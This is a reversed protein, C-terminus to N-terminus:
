PTIVTIGATINPDLVLYDFADVIGDGTLDTAVYGFTGAIVDPDLVVYDFGDISLDQPEIDGSYLAWVGTEVEIQNGAYAQTAATSFDYSASTSMLVPNASWTELANRHKVVIYYSNGNVLSPFNCLLSGDVQLIGTFPPVGTALAFPFTADHLEVTINDCDTTPNPLGSLSLAPNMQQSGIYFGQIFLTLDLTSIPLPDVIVTASAPSCSSGPVTYLITHTGVGAVAPDFQNGIVGPGSFSGGSPTGTITVAADNVLYNPALGSISPVADVTAVVPVRPSECGATVNWDFFYYYLDLRVTNTPAATLTSHNISLVGPVVYPYGYNGGPASASPEFLLGTIGTFGPRIKYNTGPAINFNLNLTTPPISGVPAGTVNFTATHLVTGSGNIVDVTVTGSASSASVPYVKVSQLTFPAFVDFVLGFNTTGAGSTATTNATAKGTTVIGTGIVTAAYYTTTSSITPTTYSNGTALPVGGTANAFWNITGGASPTADLLVTGTGCTAGPTTATVSPDNVIVTFVPSYATNSGCTTEVQYYMTHTLTGTNYTTAGTGVNTWPGTASTSEQWQIPGGTVGNSTLVSAGSYCHETLNATITGGSLSPASTITVTGSTLCGAFPGATLDEAVVSYTTTTTPLVTHPGNGSATFGAPTSTWSYTYDPDNPSTVSITTQEGPCLATSAASVTISPASNVTAVVPVRAGECGLNYGLQVIAQGGSTTCNFATSGRHGAVFTVNANAVTNTGLAFTAYQHTGTVPTIHFSYTGGPPITLNFGSAVTTFTTNGLSPATITSLLIWGTSSLNAGPILQYNDPRYYLNWTGNVGIADNVKLGMSTLNLGTPSTVMFMHHYIPTTGATGIPISANLTGGGAGTSAAAYFTTTAAVTPTYTNGTFLPTGGSANAYWLINHLPDTPTADLTVTGTGCRSGPTSSLVSPNSVQMAIVNSAAFNGNCSIEAQVWYDTALVPGNYTTGGTGDNTWPGTAGATSYQWQITGGYQGTLTFIPQTSYCIPSPASSTITGGVVGVNINLPTLNDNAANGDGTTVIDGTLTYTGNASLDVPPNLPLAITQGILLIGTLSESVSYSVPGNINVTVTSPNLGFDIDSSGSNKVNVIVQEGTSYCGSLNPSVIDLISMDINSLTYEICGPDPAALLRPTGFIDDTIGVNAGINSVSSATPTFDALGPNNFLPDSDISNIDKLVTAQWLALTAYTVAANYGFYNTGAPPNVYIVNNDSTQFNNTYYLGYKTGTGARTIVVINNKIDIGGVSGTSYIGYTAGTATSAADDFSITNHYAKIYDAGALYLGALIGSNTINYVMNNYVQHENGSTGDVSVYICYSASTSTPALLFLNRVQNNRIIASTSGTSSYISYTTTVNSRNVREVICNSVEWGVQYLAYIGYSYMDQATCNIAKNGTNPGGSNGYFVISYYGGKATCGTLVNNNGSNGTTAASTASGSISFPSTTTVTATTSCQFTCNNFSNNDANNWLHCVLAYTPDTGEVILDNVTIYDAGDLGLTYLNSANAPVTLTNGNGNFTVTNIASTSIAPILVQETYPGTGAVVNFVVPGAIGCSLASVASAFSIFNTASAPQTKDITYTGGPFPPNVTVLVPTSAVTNGSCTVECQYYQTVSATTSTVPSTASSGLNTWPGSATPGYQWQYTQGLGTSNGALTLAITNGLCLGSSPTATSTGATPPATCASAPMYTIRIQPRVTRLNPLTAGPATAGVYSLTTNTVNDKKWSFGATTWPSTGMSINFNVSIELAGGTFTYPSGFNFVQWNPGSVSTASNNYVQTSGTLLTAWAQGGAGVTTLASNKMWIEFLFPASSAAANDLNWQVDTILSGAPIGASALEAATYLYHHRSYVFNSTPGSRYMPGPDGTAGNSATGSSAGAGITVTTQARLGGFTLLVAYFLLFLKKM